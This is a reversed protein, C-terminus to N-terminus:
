TTGRAREFVMLVNDSPDNAQLLRAGRDLLGQAALRLVWEDVSVFYRLEDRNQEWSAGTGTNFVTHILSVFRFMAPTRVDHDRLVFLGGPRLVRAISRVFPGLRDPAIHHLGVYCSVLDVSADPLVDAPLPAYDALPVYRGRKRLGGRDLIDSPSNGPPVDNVMVLPGALDLARRLVSAYRGTSGIEVYGDIRRRTGLLELTQRLMEGQQKRLAPVALTIDAHWPRIGPLRAQIHRYISEDDDYQECADRILLHFRDEPHLRFVNHLFRYMADSWPSECMVAHFESNATSARLAPALGTAAGIRTPYDVTVGIESAYYKDWLANRLRYAPDLRGKLAFLERARPYAQHFQAQTAHLQYPLYYTGGCALVTDILERTWVGVREVANTRTRQKHYLVFAFTEGRAWALLTGPDGIAHRVSINLANVRHRALVATIARACEVFREVPVFYEQLVYTTQHRSIPELEAVDYGAEYNRWHVARRAYILPDLLYQRRWKGFPTETVAWLFYKEALYRRRQWQLRLRTTAPRTTEFWSVARVREFRPAYMDANHFVVGPVHRVHQRFYQPYDELPMTASRRELRRNDALALEVEVIVGIAGYGGIAAYFYEAHRDPSADVVEGGPLVLRIERVSLVVPGLGIYRGHVNVSLSGGVTFNAYTQMISVAFGHPDLFQQIDCWRIGAEVRLTRTVPSFELVRNLARLDLHLSGPSATQGGMSFHGGGVSVPVDTRRLAASVEAVSTPTAIAFVPVPNLGTVEHVLLPGSPKL